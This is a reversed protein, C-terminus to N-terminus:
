MDNLHFLVITREKQSVPLQYHFFHFVSKKNIKIDDMIQQASKIKGKTPEDTSEAGKMAIIIGDKKLFPTSLSILREMSTVARSVVVDFSMVMEPIQTLDEVRALKMMIQVLTLQRIIFKLFNIKKRKSDILTLQLSPFVIKLPIGPFGAGTGLDLVSSGPPIFKGPMLSDLMLKESIEFPDTVSTLNVAKNALLLEIAFWRLLHIQTDDIDIGLQKAGNKL